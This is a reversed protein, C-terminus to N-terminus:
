NATRDPNGVGLSRPDDEVASDPLQAVLQTPTVSVVTGAPSGNVLLVAGRQFGSGTITVRWAFHGDQDVRTLTASTIHSVNEGLEALATTVLSRNRWSLSPLSARLSARGRTQLDDLQKALSTHEQGAPVDRLADAAAVTEDHLTGLADSYTQD